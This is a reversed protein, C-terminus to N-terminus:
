DAAEDLDYEHPIVGKGTPRAIPQFMKLAHNEKQLVLRHGM